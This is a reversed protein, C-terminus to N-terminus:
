LNAELIRKLNPKKYVETYRSLVTILEQIKEPSPEPLGNNGSDAGINVQFPTCRRLLEVFPILDFDMIPEITVMKKSKFKELALSRELPPPAKSIDKYIRNTEITTCFTSSPPFQWVPITLFRAPNKTHWLYNNYPYQDRSYIIVKAIWEGPVDPHFLDCGSCIFIYNGTGLKTRLEKEDLHLSKQEGWRSVFCYSCQYPCKGRVPNWTHSIFEYMNGKSKNLPMRKQRRQKKPADM